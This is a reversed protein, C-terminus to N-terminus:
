LTFFCFLAMFLMLFPKIFITFIITLLNTGQLGYSSRVFKSPPSGSFNTQLLLFLGLLNKAPMFFNDTPLHCRFFFTKVSLSVSITQRPFIKM